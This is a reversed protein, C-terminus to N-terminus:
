VLFSMEHISAISLDRHQPRVEHIRKGITLYSSGNEHKLGNLIAGGMDGVLSEVEQKGPLVLFAFM